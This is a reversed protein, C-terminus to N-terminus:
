DYNIDEKGKEERVSIFVPFRLSISDDKQNTSEEFYKIEVIKGVIEDQNKWYYERQEDNFGSGVGVKNGRFDVYIGGLKGVLRGEGEFVGTCLIDASHFKKVKLLDPTRKTRYFGGSTNLM